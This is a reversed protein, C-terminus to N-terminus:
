EMRRMGKRSNSKKPYEDWSAPGYLRKSGDLRVYRKGGKGWRPKGCMLYGVPHRTGNDEESDTVMPHHLIFVDSADACIAGSGRVTHQNPEPETQDSEPKRLHHLVVIPISLEQSLGKLKASAEEEAEFKNRGVRVMFSFNDIIVVDFREERATREIVAMHEQWTMSKHPEFFKFPYSQIEAYAAVEDDHTLTARGVVLGALIEFSEESTLEICYYWVRLRRRAMAWGINLALTSKGVGPYGALVYTNGRRFMGATEDWWWVGSTFGRGGRERSIVMKEYVDEASLAPSTRRLRWDRVADTYEGGSRSASITSRVELIRRSADELAKEPDTGSSSVIANGISIARRRITETKLRTIIDELPFYKTEADSTIIDTLIGCRTFTEPALRGNAVWGNRAAVFLDRCGPDAFDDEAVSDFIRVTISREEASAVLRYLIDAEYTNM